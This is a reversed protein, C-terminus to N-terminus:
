KQSTNIKHTHQFSSNDAVTCKYCRGKEEDGKGGGGGAQCIIEEKRVGSGCRKLGGVGVGADM